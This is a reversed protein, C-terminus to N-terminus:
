QFAAIFASMLFIAIFTGYGLGLVAAFLKLEHMAKTAYVLFAFVQYTLLSLLALQGNGSLIVGLMILMPIIWSHIAKKVFEGRDADSLQIDRKELVRVLSM